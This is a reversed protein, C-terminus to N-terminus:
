SSVSTSDRAERVLHAFAAVLAYHEIRLSTANFESRLSASQFARGFGEYM